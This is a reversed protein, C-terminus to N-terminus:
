RDPDVLLDKIRVGLGPEKLDRFGAMNKIPVTVFIGGGAGPKNRDRRARMALDKFDPDRILEPRSGLLAAVLDDMIKQGSAQRVRAAEIRSVIDSIGGLEPKKDILKSMVEFLKVQDWVQVNLGGQKNFQFAYPVGVIDPKLTDKGKRWIKVKNFDRIAETFKTVMRQGTANIQLEGLLLPDVWQGENGKGIGAERGLSNNERERNGLFDALVRGPAKVNPDIDAVTVIDAIPDLEELRQQATQGKELEIDPRKERATNIGKVIDNRVALHNRLARTVVKSRGLGSIQKLASGTDPHVIGIREFLSDLTKFLAQKTASSKSALSSVNLDPEILIKAIDESIMKHALESLSQIPVEPNAANYNKAFLASEKSIKVDGDRPFAITFGKEDRLENKIRTLLNVDAGPNVDDGVIGRAVREGMEHTIGTVIDNKNRANSNVFVTGDSSTFTAPAVGEDIVIGGDALEKSLLNMYDGGKVVEIDARFGADALSGLLTQSDRPLSKIAERQFKDAKTSLFRKISADQRAKPDIGAGRAGFAAGLPVGFAFGTGFAEGLQEPTLDKAAFTLATQITGATVGDAIADFAMDLAKQTGKVGAISSLRKVFPSVDPSSAIRELFRVQTSPKSLILAIDGAQQLVKSTVKGAAEVGLLGAAVKPGALGVGGVFAINSVKPPIGLKNTIATMGKRPLGAITGVVGASKGIVKLGVGTLASGTKAGLRVGRRIVRNPFETVGSIDELKKGGKVLFDGLKQGGKAKSLARGTTKLTKAGKSIAGVGLFNAPDFILSGGKVITQNVDSPDFLIGETEFAQQLRRDKEKRRFERLIEKREDVFFDGVSGQLDMFFKTTEVGGQLGGEIASKTLQVPDNQALNKAERLFKPIGEKAQEFVQLAGSGFEKAKQVFPKNEEIERREVFENFRIQQEALETPQAFTPVEPIEKGEFPADDTALGQTFPDFAVEVAEDEDALGQTFPDFTTETPEDAVTALGQKFPDFAM